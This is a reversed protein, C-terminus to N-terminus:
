FDSILLPQSSLTQDSLVYWNRISTQRAGHGKQVLVRQEDSQNRLPM